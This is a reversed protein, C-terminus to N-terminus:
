RHSIRIGLDPSERRSLRGGEDRRNLGFSYVVYGQQEAVFRLPQGSFPDIPIADLYSPVLDEIRSPLSQGHALRYREIAVVARACRISALDNGVSTMRWTDGVRSSGWTPSNSVHASWPPDMRSPWPRNAGEVLAGLTEVRENLMAMLWPRMLVASGALSQVRGTNLLETRQSIGNDFISARARMLHMKLRDDRDLDRLPAAVLALAAADPRSRNVILGVSDALGAITFGSLDSPIPDVDFTRQLRLEANLSAAAGNGDGDVARLRTRLPAVRALTLMEAIRANLNGPGFGDFALPTARDLLRYADEDRAVRARLDAVLSDPWQGSWLADSVRARIRTASEEAIESGALAAAARYYRASDAAEGALIHSSHIEQSTLPERNARIRAVSQGLRRTEAYDWAAHIVFPVLLVFVVVSWRLFRPRVLPSRDATTM